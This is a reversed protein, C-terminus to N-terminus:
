INQLRLSKIREIVYSNPHGFNNDEGVGILAFKPKVANLFKETSSTKSGHHAVKLIVSNFIEENNKYEQLMKNEAIEEVDGTFLCSFAKYNLKLVLSNNNIGNDSILTEKNPWLVDFYLNNEINIKDGKNVVILNIKEKDVIKLLKDINEYKEKQNSIIVNEM